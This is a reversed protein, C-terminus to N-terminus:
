SATHDQSCLPHHWHIFKTENSHLRHFIHQSLLTRCQYNILRKDSDHSFYWYQILWIFIYPM